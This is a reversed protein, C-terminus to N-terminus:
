TYDRLIGKELNGASQNVVIQNKSNLCM